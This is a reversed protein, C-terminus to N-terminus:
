PEINLRRKERVIVRGKDIVIFGVLFAIAAFVLYLIFGLFGLENFVVSPQLCIRGFLSMLAFGTIQYVQAKYEDEKSPM